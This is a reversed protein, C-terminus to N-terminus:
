DERHSGRMYLDTEQTYVETAVQVATVLSRSYNVFSDAFFFILMCASPELEKKRTFDTVGM